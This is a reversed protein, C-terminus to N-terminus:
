ENPWIKNECGFGDPCVGNVFHGYWVSSLTSVLSSKESGTLPYYTLNTYLTSEQSTTYTYKKLAGSPTAVYANGSLYNAGAKDATSFDESNPHTHIYAKYLAGSPVSNSVSVNHPKVYHM